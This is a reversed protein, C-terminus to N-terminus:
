IILDFLVILRNFATFTNFFFLSYLIFLVTWLGFIVYIFLRVRQYWSELQTVSINKYKFQRYLSLGWLSVVLVFSYWIVAAEVVDSALCLLTFGFGTVLSWGVLLLIQKQLYDYFKEENM